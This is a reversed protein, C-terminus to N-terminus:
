KNVYAGGGVKKREGRDPFATIHLLKKKITDWHECLSKKSKKM